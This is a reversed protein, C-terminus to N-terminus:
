SQLTTGDLMWLKALADSARRTMLLRERRAVFDDMCMNSCFKNKNKGDNKFYMVRPKGCEDCCLRIAMIKGKLHLITHPQPQLRQLKSGVEEYM